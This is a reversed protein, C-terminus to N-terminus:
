KAHQALAHRMAHRGAMELEDAAEPQLMPDAVVQEHMGPDPGADAELALQAVVQQPDALRKEIRRGIVAGDDDMAVADRDLGLDAGAADADVGAGEGGAAEGREGELALLAAEQM